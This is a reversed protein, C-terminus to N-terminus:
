HVGAHYQVTRESDEGDQTIEQEATTAEDETTSSSKLREFRLHCHNGLRIEVGNLLVQPTAGLKQENIFTGYTPRKGDQSIAETIFIDKGMLELVIHQRSVGRDQPLVIDNDAGRGITTRGHTIILTKGIM